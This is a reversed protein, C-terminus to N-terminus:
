ADVAVSNFMKSVRTLLNVRQDEPQKNVAWTYCNYENWLNQDVGWAPRRDPYTAAEAVDHMMSVPLRCSLAFTDVLRKNFTAPDVYQNVMKDKWRLYTADIDETTRCIATFINEVGLGATHKHRFVESKDGMIAGNACISLEVGTYIRLSTSKDNSHRFGITKMGLGDSLSGFKLLGWCKLGSKNVFISSSTIPERVGASIASIVKGHSMPKWTATHEPTPILEALAPTIRTGHM